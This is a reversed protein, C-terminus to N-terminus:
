FMNTYLLFYKVTPRCLPPIVGPEPPELWEQFLNENSWGNHSCRYLAGIPGERELLPTMRKRAYVIMPPVYSGSASLCCIVTINRGREWSIAGGIQKQGKSGLIQAPKQVTSIGTEDMNFIRDPQFKFKDM